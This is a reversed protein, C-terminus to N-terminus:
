SQWSMQKTLCAIQESQTSVAANLRDQNTKRSYKQNRGKTTFRGNKVYNIEPVDEGSTTSDESDSSALLDPVQTEGVQHVGGNGPALMNRPCNRMFHGPKDCQFCIDTETAERPHNFKSKSIIKKSSGSLM